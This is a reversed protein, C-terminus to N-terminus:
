VNETNLLVYKVSLWRIIIKESIHAPNQMFDAIDGNYKQNGSECAIAGVEADM